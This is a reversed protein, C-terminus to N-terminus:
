VMSIAAFPGSGIPFHTVLLEDVAILGQAVLGVAPTVFGLIGDKRRSSKLPWRHDVMGPNWNGFCLGVVLARVGAAPGPRSPRAIASFDTRNQRGIEARDSAVNTFM